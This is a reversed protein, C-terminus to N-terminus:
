SVDTLTNHRFAEAQNVFQKADNLYQIAWSQSPENENMQLVREKFSISATPFNRDSLLVEFDELIGAQTNM